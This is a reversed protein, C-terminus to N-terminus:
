GGFEAFEDTVEEEEPNPEPRAGGGPQGGFFRALDGGTEDLVRGEQDQIQGLSDTGFDEGTDSVQGLDDPVGEDGEIDEPVAATPDGPAGGGQAKAEAATLAAKGRMLNAQGQPNLEQSKQEEVIRQLEDEPFEVGLNEMTTYRSQVGATMKEIELRAAAESDKPMLGPWIIKVRRHAGITEGSLMKGEKSSSSLNDSWVGIDGMTSGLTLMQGLVRQLGQQWSAQKLSLTATVNTFNVQLSAGTNVSGGGQGSFALENLNAVEIGADRM